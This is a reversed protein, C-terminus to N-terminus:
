NASIEITRPKARESKPAEITLIGDSFRATVNEAEIEAPLHVSRSFAGAVREIHAFGDEKTEKAIERKGRLTLVGEHVSIQMDEGRVGPLDAKFMEVTSAPFPGRVALSMRPPYAVWLWAASAGAAAFVATALIAIVSIKM